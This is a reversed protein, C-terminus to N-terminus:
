TDRLAIHNQGPLNFSFQSKRYVNRVKSLIWIGHM